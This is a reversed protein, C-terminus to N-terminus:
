SLPLKPTRGALTAGCLKYLVRAGVNADWDGGMAHPAVECLDFGIVTRGSHVVQELVYAAEQFSLGGPVPTGTGPCLSPDLGDIDFSVYVKPGLPALVRAVTTAFSQGIARAGFLDRDYFTTIRPDSAALKHESASYDRIGVQVLHQVSPLRRLVNHMISAHSDAFGEYADRLDHHADIHLIDFAQRAALAALLGMPSSHDGGIVGCLKGRELWKDATGRVWANVSTSAQNVAALDAADPASGSDFAAIVRKARIATASALEVLEPDTPLLHIGSRYPEGFAGDVLDLQHSARLIANPATATGGGYSTTAEWPVPILILQAADADCTGGFIGADRGPPNGAALDEVNWTSM